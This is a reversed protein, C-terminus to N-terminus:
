ECERHQSGQSVAQETSAAFRAMLSWVSLRSLGNAAKSGSGGGAGFNFLLPTTAISIVLSNM